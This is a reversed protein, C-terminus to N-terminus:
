RGAGGARQAVGGVHRQESGFTPSAQGIPRAGVVEVVMISASPSASATASSSRLAEGRVIEAGQMRAALEPLLQQPDGLQHM